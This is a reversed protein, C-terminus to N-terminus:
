NADIVQGSGDKDTSLSPTGKYYTDGSGQIDVNLIDNVLVEVDGSGDILVTCKDSMLDFGDFNGSGLINIEQEPASGTLNVDGSGDITCTLKNNITLEKSASINGSGDINVDLDSITFADITIDGSGNIILTKLTSIEVDLKINVNSYNGDKLDVKLVNNNVSLDLHEMLNEYGTALVSQTEGYTINVDISSEISIGSLNSVEFSQTVIDGEGLIDNESCSSFM